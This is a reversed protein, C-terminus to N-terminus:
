FFFVVRQLFANVLFSVLHTFAFLFVFFIFTFCVRDRLLLRLPRYLMHSIFKELIM